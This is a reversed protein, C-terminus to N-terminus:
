DPLASQRVRAMLAEWGEAGLARLTALNREIIEDTDPMAAIAKDLSDERLLHLMPYPSRNTCHTIDDPDVGAFRYDPHFSAIQLHGSLGAEELANEAVALFENYDFFDQLVWPHILLATDIQDAPSQILLEFTALLDQLLRDTDQAQSVRYAIQNKKHVANAFPCLNLGIVAEQLWSRTLAIVTEDSLSTSPIM